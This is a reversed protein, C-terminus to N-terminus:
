LDLGEQRFAERLQLQEDAALAVAERHTFSHPLAKLAEESPDVGSFALIARTSERPSRCFEEYSLTHWRNPGVQSRTDDLAAQLTAIQHAVQKAASAQLLRDATSPTASLWVDDSGYFERRLHILSQAVHFMPREMHVFRSTPYTTALFSNVYGLILNKFLLPGDVDDQLEAFDQTLASTDLAALVSAGPQHHESFPFHREWFYGFEHPEYWAKTNGASSEFSMPGRVLWAEALRQIQAGIAPRAFFRAMFNSPYGFAGTAALAQYLLTTGSRPLGTIFVIPHEIATTTSQPLAALQENVKAVVGEYDPNKAYAATRKGDQKM